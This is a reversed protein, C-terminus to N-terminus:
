GWGGVAFGEVWAGGGGVGIGAEVVEGHAAGEEGGEVVEAVLVGGEGDAAEEPHLALLVCFM